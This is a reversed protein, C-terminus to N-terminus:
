GEGLADFRQVEYRLTSLEPIGPVARWAGVLERAAEVLAAHSSKLKDDEVEAEDMSAELDLCSQLSLTLHDRLRKNEAELKTIVQLANDNRLSRLKANEAELRQIMKERHLLLDEYHKSDLKM